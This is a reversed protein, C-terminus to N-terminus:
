QEEIVQKPRKRVATFVSKAPFAAAPFIAATNAHQTTAIVVM